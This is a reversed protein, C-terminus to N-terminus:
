HCRSSYSTQLTPKNQHPPGTHSLSSNDVLLKRFKTFIFNIVSEPRSINSFNRQSELAGVHLEKLENFTEGVVFVIDASSLILPDTLAERRRNYTPVPFARPAIWGSSRSPNSALLAVLEFLSSSSNPSCTSLLWFFVCSSSISKRLM